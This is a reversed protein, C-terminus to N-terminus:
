QKKFESTLADEFIRMVIQHVKIGREVFLYKEIEHNISEYTFDTFWAYLSLNLYIIEVKFDDLEILLSIDYDRPSASKIRPRDKFFKRITLIFSRFM